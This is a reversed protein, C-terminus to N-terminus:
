NESEVYLLTPNNKHIFTDTHQLTFMRPDFPKSIIHYGHLTPIRAVIKPSGNPLSSEIDKEIDLVIAEDKTDVDILWTKNEGDAVYKGVIGDIVGKLSYYQEKEIIEAIEGLSKLCCKKWSAANLRIYARAHFMRCLTKIEEIHSDYYDLSSVYYSKIVRTGKGADAVDKRRVWLQILYFRDKNDDFKLLNRILDFNDIIEM